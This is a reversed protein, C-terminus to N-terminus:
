FIYYYVIKNGSTLWYNVNLAIIFELWTKVSGIFGGINADM